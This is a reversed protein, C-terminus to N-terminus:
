KRLAFAITAADHMDKVDHVRLVQVGSLVAAAVAGATGYGRAEVAANNLLAGIFSKRSVGLLLPYGLTHFTELNKLLMLNHELTKGFGIGVDLMIQNVGAERAIAARHALFSKVEEVVNTYRPNKQMTRPTGQIHMLAMTANRSGCLPSMAPDFVGGSIDNVITAGADLAQAAVASKYTDISVPLSPFRKAIHEIVPITRRLEEDLSVEDAGPRTSEGGIDIIDAGEEIMEEARRVAADLTNFRGGDSFSDPTVNLVGM